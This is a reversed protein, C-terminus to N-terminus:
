MMTCGLEPETFDGERIKESQGEDDCMAVRVRPSVPLSLSAICNLVDTPLRRVRFIRQILDSWQTARRDQTQKIESMIQESWGDDLWIPEGMEIVPCASGLMLCIAPIGCLLRFYLMRNCAFEEELQAEYKRLAEVFQQFEEPSYLLASKEAVHYTLMQGGRLHLLKEPLFAQEDAIAELEKSACAGDPNLLQEQLDQIQLCLESEPQTCNTPQAIVEGAGLRGSDPLSIAVNRMTKCLPGGGCRTKTQLHLCTRWRQRLFVQIFIEFDCGM